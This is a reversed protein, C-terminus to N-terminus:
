GGQPTPSSATASCANPWARSRPTATAPNSRRGARAPRPRHRRRNRWRRRRPSRHRAPDPCAHAPDAPHTPHLPDHGRQHTTGASARIPQRRDRAVSCERRHGFEGGAEEIEEGRRSARRGQDHSSRRPSASAPTSAAGRRARLARPAACGRVPRGRGAARAARLMQVAVDQAGGVRWAISVSRSHVRGCARSGRASGRVARRRATRHRSRRRGRRSRPRAASRCSPAASGTARRACAAPSGTRAAPTPPRRPRGAGRARRRRWRRGRSGPARRLGRRHALQELQELVAAHDADQGVLLGLPRRRIRATRRRARASWSTAPRRACRVPAATSNAYQSRMSPRGVAAGRAEGQVDFRRRGGDGIGIRLDGDGREVGREFADGPAIRRLVLPRVLAIRQLRRTGPFLIRVLSDRDFKPSRLSTDFGSAPTTAPTHQETHKSVPAAVACASSSVQGSDFATLARRPGNRALEAATSLGRFAGRQHGADCGAIVEREQAVGRNVADASCIRRRMGMTRARRPTSRRRADIVARIATARAPRRRAIRGAETKRFSPRYPTARERSLRVAAQASARSVDIAPSRASRRFPGASRCATGTRGAASVRLRLTSPARRFRM